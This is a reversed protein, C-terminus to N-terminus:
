FFITTTALKVALVLTKKNDHNLILKLKDAATSIITSIYTHTIHSDSGTAVKTVRLKM